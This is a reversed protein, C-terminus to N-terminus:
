QGTICVSVSGTAIPGVSIEEDDGTFDVWLVPRDDYEEPLAQIMKKIERLTKVAM